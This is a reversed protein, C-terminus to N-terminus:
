AWNEKEEVAIRVILKGRLFVRVWFPGFRMTMGPVSLTSQKWYEKHEELKEVAAGQTGFKESHKEWSSGAASSRYQSNLTRKAM